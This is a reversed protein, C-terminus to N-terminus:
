IAIEEHRFINQSFRRPAFWLLRLQAKLRNTADTLDITTDIGYRIQRSFQYLFMSNRFGFHRVGIMDGRRSDM